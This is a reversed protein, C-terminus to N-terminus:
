CRAAEMAKLARSLEDADFGPEVSLRLGSDLEFWFGCGRRPGAFTLEVFGDGARDARGRLRKKWYNFKWPPIGEARCFRLASTGSAEWRGLIDGWEERRTTALGSMM